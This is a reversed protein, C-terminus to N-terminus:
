LREVLKLILLQLIIRIGEEYSAFLMRRTEDMNHSGDDVGPLIHCHIDFYGQMVKGGNIYHIIQELGM